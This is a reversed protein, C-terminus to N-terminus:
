ASVFVCNEFSVQDICERHFVHGCKVLRRAEEHLEYESLCVQCREEALITVVETGNTAIANLNEDLAGIQLVGGARAIDEASAVPPKAPGLLTSLLIMDEYSPSDTFLSPTSLIPHNEPYSGGLVYIVWSRNGETPANDPELHIGNRRASGSGFRTFDSESLRRHRAARSSRQTDDNPTEQTAPAPQGILSERRTSSLSSIGAISARNSHIPTLTRSSLASLPPSAPTTPPPFPGPPTDSYTSGRNESIPRSTNTRSYDRDRSFMGFGGMSARRRQPVRQGGSPQQPGNEATDGHGNDALGINVAPPFNTFADFLSPMNDGNEQTASNSGNLSRIGVILIPVMRREDGEGNESPVDAAQSQTSPSGSTSAPRTTGDVGGRAISSSGIRFMRFFDLSGTGRTAAEGEGSAPGRQSQNLVSAIRGTSLERLFGDFAGDDDDGLGGADRFRSIARDPNNGLLSAATAAATISLLRTLIATNDEAAHTGTEAETERRRRLPSARYRSFREPSAISSRETRGPSNHRRGSVSPSSAGLTPPSPGSLEEFTADFSDIEAIDQPYDGSLSAEPAFGPASPDHDRSPHPSPPDVLPFPSTSNHRNFISPISTFSNRLRSRTSLFSPRLSTSTM